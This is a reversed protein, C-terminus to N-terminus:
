YGWIKILHYISVIQALCFYFVIYHISLTPMEVITYKPIYSMMLLFGAILFPFSMVPISVIIKKIIRKM